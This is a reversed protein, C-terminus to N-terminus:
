ESAKNTHEGRLSVPAVPDQTRGIAMAYAICSPLSARRVRHMVGPEGNRVEVLRQLEVTVQEAEFNNHLLFASAPIEGRDRAIRCYMDPHGLQGYVARAVSDFEEFVDRRSGHRERELRPGDSNGM